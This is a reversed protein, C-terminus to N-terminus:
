KMDTRSVVAIWLPTLMKGTRKRRRGPEMTTEIMLVRMPRKRHARQLPQNIVVVPQPRKASKSRCVLVSTQAPTKTTNPTPLPINSLLTFKPIWAIEFDSFQPLAAHIYLKTLDIPIDIPTATLRETWSLRVM